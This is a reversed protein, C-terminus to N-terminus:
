SRRARRAPTSRRRASRRPSACTSRPTSCRPF